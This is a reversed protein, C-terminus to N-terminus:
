GRWCGLRREPGRDRKTSCPRSHLPSPLQRVTSPVLHGAGSGKRSPGHSDHDDACPCDSRMEGFTEGALSLVHHDDLGVGLLGGFDLFRVVGQHHDAVAGAVRHQGLGTDVFGVQEDGDGVVVAGVDQGAMRGAAQTNGTGDGADLIWAQDLAQVHQSDVGDEIGAVGPRSFQDTQDPLASHRVQDLEAFASQRQDAADDLRSSRQGAPRQRFGTGALAVTEIPYQGRHHPAPQRGDSVAVRDDVLAIVDQHHHGGVVDVLRSGEHSEFGM